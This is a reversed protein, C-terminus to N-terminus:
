TDRRIQVWSLIAALKEVTLGGAASSTEVAAEIRQNLFLADRHLYREAVARNGADYRSLIERRQQGDIVPREDFFGKGKMAENLAMLDHHFRRRAAHDLPMANIIRQYALLDRNLSTNVTERQIELAAREIGLISFFDDILSGGAYSEREYSRVVLAERGFAAEWRSLNAEYDWLGDFAVLCEELSHTYGQAKITQNFWSEHADDQRRLYVVISLERDALVGAGELFRKLGQPNPCLYFDESSLVLSQRTDRERLEQQLEDLTREQSSAWEPYGGGVLFAIDHHGYGRLSVAPYEFGHGALVGANATLIHQM